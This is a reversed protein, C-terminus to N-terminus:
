FAQRRNLLYCARLIHWSFLGTLKQTRRAKPPEQPIVISGAILNRPTSFKGKLTTTIDATGSASMESHEAFTKTFLHSFWPAKRQPGPGDPAEQRHSRVTTGLLLGSKQASNKCTKRSEGNEHEQSKEAM